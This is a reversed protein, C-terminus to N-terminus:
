DSLYTIKLSYNFLMEGKAPTAAISRELILASNELSYFALHFNPSDNLQHWNFIKEVTLVMEKEVNSMEIIFKLLLAGGM